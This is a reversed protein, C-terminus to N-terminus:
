LTVPVPSSFSCLALLQGPSEPMSLYQSWCVWVFEQVAVDLHSLQLSSSKCVWDFQLNWPSCSYLKLFVWIRGSIVNTFVIEFYGGKILAPTRQDLGSPLLCKACFLTQLISVSLLASPSLFVHNSNTTQHCLGQTWYKEGSGSLAESASSPGNDFSLTLSCPEWWVSQLLSGAWRGQVM